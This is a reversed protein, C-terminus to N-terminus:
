FGTRDSLRKDPAGAELRCRLVQLSTALKSAALIAASRTAADMHHRIAISGRQEAIPQQFKAASAGDIYPCESSPIIFL